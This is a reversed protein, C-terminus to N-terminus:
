APDELRQKLEEVRCLSAHQCNRCTGEDDIPSIDTRGSKFDLVIIKLQTHWRECLEEWNECKTQKKISLAKLGQSPIFESAATHINFDGKKVQGFAIGDPNLHIAYLPLQPDRVPEKFWNGPTVKGSKYDILLQRGDPFADIRDARYSFRLGEFNFKNKKELASVQFDERNLEFELWGLVLDTVRQFEMEKFHPQDKLIRIYDDKVLIKKIVNGVLNSLSGSNFLQELKSRTKIEKWVLELALHIINGREMLDFDTEAILYRDALLRYISFARFPCEVQNKLIGYGGQFNELFASSAQIEPTDSISELPTVKIQDKLRHTEESIMEIEHLGSLLPSPRKPEQNKVLSYSFVVHPSSKVLRSILTKAFRFQREPSAYPLELKKQLRAPLFPNPRLPEPLIDAECGIVWLSDFTQGSSELLGMLQVPSDETSQEQFPRAPNAVMNILYTAAETRSIHGLIPDLTALEDLRSEWELYAQIERSSLKRFKAPWGIGALVKVFVRAWESPLKRSQYKKNQQFEIWKALLRKISKYQLSDKQTKGAAPLTLNRLNALTVEQLKKNILRTELDEVVNEDDVEPVLYPSKLTQLLRPFPAPISASSLITLAPPFMSEKILPQGLSVNFPLKVEEWPFISNPALEAMLERELPVKVEDLRTAVVGIRRGEKYQSRIWRACQIIETKLDSFRRVSANESNPFDTPSHNSIEEPFYSVKHDDKELALILSKTAPIIEDFGALIIQDPLTIKGSVILQIVRGMVQSQDIAGQQQLVGEFANKWRFFSQTEETGSFNRETAPIEYQHLFAYAKAADKAAGKLTLPDLAVFERDAELLTEWITQSQLSSLIWRDPWNAQYIENLWSQISFIPATLWITQGNNKRADADQLELHRKLRNNVTLVLHNEPLPFKLTM